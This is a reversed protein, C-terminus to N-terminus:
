RALICVPTNQFDWSLLIFEPALELTLARRTPAIAFGVIVLTLDAERENDGARNSGAGRRGTALATRWVGSSCHYSESDPYTEAM